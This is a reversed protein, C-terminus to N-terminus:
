IKKAIVSPSYESPSVETCRMTLLRHFTGLKFDYWLGEFPLLSDFAKLLPSFKKQRLLQAYDRRKTRSLRALWSQAELTRRARSHDRVKRFITGDSYPQVHEFGEQTKGM